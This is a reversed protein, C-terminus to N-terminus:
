YIKGKKIVTKVLNTGFRYGLHRYDPVDLVILDAQKGPELSGIRNEMRIAAAANITAAAIAQNPTLKLYRCALAVAFQMNECWATGPNLDSAIALIAGAKLLDSAPTYSGEALGFPTCPLSVAVTDSNGLALVDKASTVVLHDASAAGLEVALSAGGLNEFEDAHIKVPFGAQIATELIKRSQDLSFAGRECFVDVFPLPQDTQDPWWAALAPILVQCLHDTYGATDGEYEPPVAHAGLYTLAIDVAEMEQLELLAKLLRHETEQDLGYGTKAELTTTGHAFMCRLRLRTQAILEELSADRTARVTSLIGGGAELIELYTRGQLRLEFEASRDGAWIVHTHPDVFGPMVVRGGVDLTEEGPYRGALESTTGTELIKGDRILVAGDQILGLDGLYQGRQPGGALTLVQSASRILMILGTGKQSDSVNYCKWSKVSLYWIAKIGNSFLLSHNIFKNLIPYRNGWLGTLQQAFPCNQREKFFIRHIKVFIM